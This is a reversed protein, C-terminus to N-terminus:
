LWFYIESRQVLSRRGARRRMIQLSALGRERMECLKERYHESLALRKCTEGFKQSPLPDCLALFYVAWKEYERDLFLLDFWSVIQEAEGLLRRVPASFHLDSQIFRLLGLDAM